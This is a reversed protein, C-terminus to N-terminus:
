NEVEQSNEYLSDEFIIEIKDTDVNSRDYAPKDEIPEESFISM